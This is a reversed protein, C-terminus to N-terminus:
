KKIVLGRSDALLEDAREKAVTIVQGEKYNKGTYKDTFGGKLIVTLDVKEAKVKPKETEKVEPKETKVVKVNDKKNM